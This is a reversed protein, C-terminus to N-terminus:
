TSIYSNSEVISVSKNNKLWKELDFMNGNTWTFINNKIEYDYIERAEIGFLLSPLGFVQAEYCCSSCATIHHTSNSFSDYLCVESSEITYLDKCIFELRKKVYEIGRSDNPHIRFNFHIDNGKINKLFKLM